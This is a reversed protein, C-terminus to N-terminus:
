SYSFSKLFSFTVMEGTFHQEEIFILKFIKYDQNTEM